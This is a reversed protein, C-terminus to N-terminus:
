SALADSVAKRVDVELTGELLHAAGTVVRLTARPFYDLSKQAAELPAPVDREGWVLTVPALVAAADELYDEAVTKVLIQRMVGSANLYDTSGYKQRTREMAKESVLGWGHLRKALAFAPSIRTAPTVRTLPVGTLVLASVLQPHRAALRLAIRGGFSHGVLVQPPLGEMAKALHDAYDAPSWPDPPPPAAGFGPVHLALANQGELIGTFDAGSRGWGHLAIVSPPEGGFKDGVWDSSGLTTLM